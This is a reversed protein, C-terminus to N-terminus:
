TALGFSLLLWHYTEAKLARISYLRVIKAKMDKKLNYLPILAPRSYAPRASLDSASIHSRSADPIPRDESRYRSVGVSTGYKDGTIGLWELIVLTSSGVHQIIYSAVIRSQQRTHVLPM